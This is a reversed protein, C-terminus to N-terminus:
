LAKLYKYCKKWNQKMNHHDGRTQVSFKETLFDRQFFFVVLKQFQLLGKFIVWWNFSCKSGVYSEQTKEIIM